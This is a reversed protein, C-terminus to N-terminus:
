EGQREAAAGRETAMGVLKPDVGSIRRWREIAVDCYRPELEISVASRKMVEAAVLTSGSGGFVDIVRDGPSTSNRMARMALSTPKQTPHMYASAADKREDWVTSQTRDYVKHRKGGPVEGYLIPEYGNRYDQWGMTATPKVWVLTGLLEFGASLFAGEFALRIGPRQDGHFVYATAGPALWARAARFAEELFVRLESPSMDDNKIKAHKAGRSNNSGGRSQYNVGYPPDTFLMACPDGTPAVRRADGCIVLHRGCEWVQGRDVRQPVDADALAEDVSAPASRELRKEAEALEQAAMAEVEEVSFGTVEVQDPTFGDLIEALKLGDWTAIEGLRNDAVVYRRALEPDHDTQLIPVEALGLREAAMFRTDGAEVEGAADMLLPTTWGFEQLSEVIAGVAKANDRPNNTRRRLESIPRFPVGQARLAELSRLLRESPAAPQAAKTRRKTAM